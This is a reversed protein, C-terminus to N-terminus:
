WAPLSILSAWRGEKSNGMLVHKAFPTLPDWVLQKLKKRGWRMCLHSERSMISLFDLAKFPSTFLHLIESSHPKNKNEPIEKTLASKNKYCLCFLEFQLILVYENLFVWTPYFMWLPSLVCWMYDCMYLSNFNQHIDKWLLHSWM